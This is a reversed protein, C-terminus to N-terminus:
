IDTFKTADTKADIRFCGTGKSGEDSVVSVTRECANHNISYIRM